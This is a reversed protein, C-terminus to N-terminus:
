AVTVAGASDKFYPLVDSYLYMRLDELEGAEGKV